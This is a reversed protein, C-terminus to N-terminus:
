RKRRPAPKAGELANVRATLEDIKEHADQLAQILLPVYKSYDVMWPMFRDGDEPTGTGPTIAAPFAEHVEQAIVGVAREKNLIWSFEKIAIKDLIERGKNFPTDDEKLRADSTTQFLTSNDNIGVTGVVSMAYNYNVQSYALGSATQQYAYGIWSGPIVKMFVQSGGTNMGNANAVIGLAIAGTSRQIYLPWNGLQNNVLGFDGSGDVLNYTLQWWTAASPNKFFIGPFGGSANPQLTLSPSQGSRLTVNPSLNINGTAREIGIPNDLYAGSDNFRYINFDDNANASNSGQIAWHPVGNRYFNVNSAGSNQATAINNIAIVSPGVPNAEWLLGTLTLSADSRKVTLPSDLYAGADSYRSLILDSGANSGSENDSRAGQLIWRNNGNRQWNLSAGHVGSPANTNLVLLPDMTNQFIEGSFTARGDSRRISLATGPNAGSDDYAIFQLDSGTFSGTETATNVQIQWRQLSNKSFTFTATSGGPVDNVGINPGVKQSWVNGGFNARGTSRLIQLPTDIYAGADSFRLLTFDSGVNSGTELDTRVAQLQWRVNTNHYFNINTGHVGSTSTENLNISADAMAIGLAGSMTDGAKAVFNTSPQTAISGLGLNNRATAVNAVDSLNNVAQLAGSASGPVGTANLNWDAFTGSGNILDVSLSLSTGSYATCIGEMWSNPSSNSSARVRSGPSYALGSQTAFTKAGLSLTLSSTSTAQYGPGVPGIPGIPGQVGQPGQIGQPGIPGTPGPPGAPGGLDGTLNINWDSFTGSGSVLDSNITLTVGSYATVIGEMWTTPTGNSAARARAGVTYALGPQTTFTKTGFGITLSTGSTAIYGPGPPGQPGLPGTAGPAGQVGQPGIPGTAGQAGTPGPIGQPGAPGPDGQPGGPTGADGKPGVPGQPGTAGPQGCVAINWDWYSGTGSTRDVNITLQQTDLNYNTVTGEMWNNTAGQVAAHVREGGLFGLAFQAMPFTVIGTTIATYSHSTGSLLLGAPAYPAAVVSAGPNPEALEISTIM